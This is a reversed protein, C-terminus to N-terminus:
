LAFEHVVLQLLNNLELLLHAAVRVLAKDDDILLTNIWEREIDQGLVPNEGQSTSLSSVHFSHLQDASADSLVRNIIEGGLNQAPSSRDVLM